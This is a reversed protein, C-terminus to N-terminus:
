LRTWRVHNLTSTVRGGMSKSGILASTSQFRAVQLGQFHPLQSDLRVQRQDMHKRLTQNRWQFQRWDHGGVCMYIYLLKMKTQHNFRTFHWKKM